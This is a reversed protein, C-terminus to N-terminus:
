AIPTVIGLGGGGAAAPQVRALGDRVAEIDVRAKKDLVVPKKPRHRRIMLYHVIGWTALITAMMPICISFFLKMGNPRVVWESELKDNDDWNLVGSSFFTQWLKPDSSIGKKYM